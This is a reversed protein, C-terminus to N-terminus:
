IMRADIDRTVINDSHDPNSAIYETVSHILKTLCDCLSMKLETESPKIQKSLLVCTDIITKSFPVVQVPLSSALKGFSNFITESIKVSSNPQFHLLLVDMVKDMYQNAMVVLLDQIMMIMRDDKVSVMEETIAAMIQGIVARHRVDGGDLSQAGTMQEMIPRLCGILHLLSGPGQGTNDRITWNSWTCFM